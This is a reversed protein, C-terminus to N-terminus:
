GALKHGHHFARSFSRQLPTSRMTALSTLFGEMPKSESWFSTRTMAALSPEAVRMAFDAFLSIAFRSNSTITARIFLLSRV